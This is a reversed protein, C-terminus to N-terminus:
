SIGSSHFGLQNTIIKCLIKHSFLLVTSATIIIICQPSLFFYGSLVVLHQSNTLLSLFRFPLLLISLTAIRSKRKSTKKYPQRHLTTKRLSGTMSSSKREPVSQLRKVILTFHITATWDYLRRKKQFCPVVSFDEQLKRKRFLFIFITGPFDTSRLYDAEVLSFQSQKENFRFIIKNSDFIQEIHSLTTFRSEIQGIYRSKYISPFTSTGNLIEFFVPKRNHTAIRLDKLKEFGILHHFDILKFKITLDVTKGKQEIIPHYQTDLLFHFGKAWVRLKDFTQQEMSPQEQYLSIPLYAASLLFITRIQHLATKLMKKRGFGSQNSIVAYGRSFARYLM